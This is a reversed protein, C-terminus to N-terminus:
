NRGQCFTRHLAYVARSYKTARDRNQHMEEDSLYQKLNKEWLIKKAPHSQYGWIIDSKAEIGQYCTPAAKLLGFVRSSSLVM